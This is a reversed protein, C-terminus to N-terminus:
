EKIVYKLNDFLRQILRRDKTIIEATGHSEQRFPLKKGYNTMLGSDLKVTVLYTELVDIEIPQAFNYHLIERKQYPM